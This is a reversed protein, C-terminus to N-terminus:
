PSAEAWDPIVDTLAALLADDDTLRIYRRQPPVLWYAGPPTRREGPPLLFETTVSVAGCVPATPWTATSGAAVFFYVGPM